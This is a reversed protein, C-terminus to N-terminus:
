ACLIELKVIFYGKENSTSLHHNKPYLINLRKKLNSLGFGNKTTHPQNKYLLSHDKNKCSFVLKNHNYSFSFVMPNSDNPKIGYKFANEVIPMFLMPAVSISNLNSAINFDVSINKQHRHKQLAIYNEIHEIEQQLNVREKSNQFLIYRLLHSLSSISAATHNDGFQYSSAYLANLTNFLFHPDTQSKLIALETKKMELETANRAAIQHIWDVSFRTFFSIFVFYFKIIFNFAIFSGIFQFKNGEFNLTFLYLDLFTSLLTSGIITLIITLIISKHSNSKSTNTLYFYLWYFIVINFVCGLTGLLEYGHFYIKSPLSSWEIITVVVLAIFLTLSWIFLHIFITSRIHEKNSLM